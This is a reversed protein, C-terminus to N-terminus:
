ASVKRRRGSQQVYQGLRILRAAHLRRLAQEVEQDTAGFDAVIHKEQLSGIFTAMKVVLGGEWGILAQQLASDLNHPRGVLTAGQASRKMDLPM